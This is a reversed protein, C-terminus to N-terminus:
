WCTESDGVEVVAIMVLMNRQGGGGGGRDDGVTDGGGRDDDVTDGGGRGVVVVDGGGSMVAVWEGGGRQVDYVGRCVVKVVFSAAADSVTFQGCACAVV